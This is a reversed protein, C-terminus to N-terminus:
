QGGRLEVGTAHWLPEGNGDVTMSIRVSQGEEPATFRAEKSRISERPAMLREARVLALDADTVNYRFPAPRSRPLLYYLETSDGQAWGKTTANRTDFGTLVVPVRARSAKGPPFNVLHEFCDRLTRYCRTGHPVFDVEYGEMIYRPAFLKM